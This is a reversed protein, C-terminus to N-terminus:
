ASPTRMYSSYTCMSLDVWVSSIDTRLAPDRTQTECFPAKGYIGPVGHDRPMVLTIGGPGRQDSKHGAPQVGRTETILDGAGVRLIPYFYPFFVRRILADNTIYSVRKM